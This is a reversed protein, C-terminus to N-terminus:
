VNGFQLQEKQDRREEEEDELFSDLNPVYGAWKMECILEDLRQYIEVCRPHAKDGVLFAHMENKVEIWSCGPEKKMRSQRMIRRIKSVEGWKGVEAYINSLLIYAASDEPDLLLINNAVMEAVEVNRHIKCVSLLNRWIVADAEVPMDNILNLAEHIGKSRGVIDVMCSYHELQPELKYHNTMLQFYHMGDDVLGVHGCARLVAVFTAHNPRVNELQMREFMRLAELGLGHYAYGCIMANWSVFDREHMKEFILLSEQMNGCKAYMDVLTSSIFVDRQLEQKVIQGHIQKGLGVMALNACTDLVSAYTFNDPKIGIDLMQSFFNQAEESQKQLSFGSIIANWSVLTQKEIRQHLKQAEEMMGCKCYMDVLASGIFSDLGLGSKIIKDHVKMGNDLSQLGACAKLVSGYTFEDPEMGCRLMQSFHALTEEYQGNQELATIIANWSVADRRDMEEFIDCADTLAKCKGYMDLVANRVCIDSILSTKIALCHIQSGQFYGKVEACASFVGSLSIEDVGVGSRNMLQFLNMAELTRNSRAFGVVIANWSQLTRTPMWKFVRLADDLCDGKTYMDLIATGVVIDTSFNNKLAHGHFQSGVRVSSLGACLRFVSAYVSQSVGVGSRQMEMFLELGDIFKENRSCGGIVASWSVWNREPMEFFFHLSDGLSKCKAYMDVVASGTVVDFDLGMKLVMGHIQSGLELEESAACSKLIIAFTTRDPEIGSRGMQLFLEISSYSSGNQLYGSILSNWSIVDREPIADFLSEAIGMAGSESYGSIMANWSITDKEPMRDFVKRAYDLNSCRVYMHMLCNAVFTTPVFGTTIMQAHAERGPNLDQHKACHQFIHSFTRRKTPPSHPEPLCTSFPLRLALCKSFPNPPLSSSKALLHRLSPFAM